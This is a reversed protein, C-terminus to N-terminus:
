LLEEATVKQIGKWCKKMRVMMNLIESMSRSTPHRFIEGTARLRSYRDGPTEKETKVHVLEIDHPIKKTILFMVTAYFTIQGWEDVQHRSWPEQGTKYEKFASFDAKTTDPKALLPIEEKGDKIVTEIPQDMIEFKPLTEAVMDLVPDGTLRDNELADALQRGFAMGRNVPMKEGYLYIRKWTALNKEFLIMSSWSLYPRPTIM